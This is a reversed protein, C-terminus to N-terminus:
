LRSFSVRVPAIMRIMCRSCSLRGEPMVRPVIEGAVHQRLLIPLDHAQRRDGLVVLAVGEVRLQPRVRKGPPAALRQMGLALRQRGDLLDATGDALIIEGAL